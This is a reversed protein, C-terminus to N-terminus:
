IASRWQVRLGMNGKPWNTGLALADKTRQILAYFPAFDSPTEEQRAKAALVVYLMLADEFDQSLPVVVTDEDVDNVGKVYLVQLGNTINSTPTPRIEIFDDVVGYGIWDADFLKERPTPFVEAYTQNTSDYVAVGTLMLMLWPVPYAGTGAVINQTENGAMNHRALYEPWLTALRQLTQRIAENLYAYLEVDEYNDADIDKLRFRAQTLFWPGSRHM